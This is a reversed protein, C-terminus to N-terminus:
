GNLQRAPLTFTPVLALAPIAFFGEMNQLPLASFLIITKATSTANMRIQQALSM